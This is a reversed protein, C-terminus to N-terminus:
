NKINQANWDGVFGIAARSNMPKAFWFGQGYACNLSKLQMLQEKTEIGEAITDMGLNSGLAVIAKVIEGKEGETGLREIFSRDIKLLNFPLSHLYSLSSYGTGFDDLCLQVGRSRLQELVVSTTPSNDIMVSETIELKLCSGKLGTEGLVRDFVEILDPQFFQNGSLNVSVKLTTTPLQEQWSRLQCCATRLVWRDIAVSLGTEEALPIFKDPSILGQWPHQWRVLAEFGWLRQTALCIIPQYYLVFEEREIALRLDHELELRQLIETHMSPTFVEYGGKGRSKAYYMATDADRLLNTARGDSAYLNARDGLAIGISASVYVERENLILPPKLIQQIQGAVAIAEKLDALEELLIAFEDGGHRAIIFNEREYKQLRHAVEILLRDGVLHGLSDNVVKFGDLDLFLLAFGRAPQLQSRDIARELREMLLRRSALGTLGDHFADYELQQQAQKRETIDTVIGDIRITNGLNDLILRARDRVWRMEGNPRWIRYEIDQSGISYLAKNAERVRQRDELVIVERRLNFNGLFESITRGYIQETAANLYLLQFKHPDVSWVVDEISDFISDLREQNISLAQQNAQLEAELNKCENLEQKVIELEQKSAVASKQWAEAISKLSVLGYVRYDVTVIPLYKLQQHQMLDMLVSINPLETVKLAIPNPSIVRALSLEQWNATSVALEIADRATFIGVLKESEVVLICGAQTQSLTAIAETVNTEARVIQPYKDIAWEVTM